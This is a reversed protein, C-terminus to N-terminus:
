PKPPHDAAQDPQPVAAPHAAQYAAEAEDVKEELVKADDETLDLVWDRDVGTGDLNQTWAQLKAVRVDDILHLDESHEGMLTSALEPAIDMGFAAAAQGFGSAAVQRATSEILMRDRVRLKERILVEVAADPLALLSM